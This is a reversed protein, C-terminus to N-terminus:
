PRAGTASVSAELGALTGSVATITAHENVIFFTPVSKVQFARSLPGNAPEAILTAASGLAAAFDGSKKPDGAVIALARGQFREQALAAFAPLQDRCAPCGTSFAGVFTLGTFFDRGVSSGTSSEAAFEPLVTGLQVFPPRTPMSALRQEHHRLRRVVAMTLLLNVASVLGIIIVAVTLYRM